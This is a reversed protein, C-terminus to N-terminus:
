DDDRREPSTQGSTLIRHSHRWRSSGTAPRVILRSAAPPVWRCVGAMGHTRSIASRSSTVRSSRATRPASGPDCSIRIPLRRTAGGPLSSPIVRPAGPLVQPALLADALSRAVEQLAWLAAVFLVAEARTELLRTVDARMTSGDVACRGGPGRCRILRPQDGPAVPTRTAAIVGEGRGTTTRAVAPAVDPHGPECGDGGLRM